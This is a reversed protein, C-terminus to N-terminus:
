ILAATTAAFPAAIIAALALRAPHRVIWVAPTLVGVVVLALLPVLLAVHNYVVWPWYLFPSDGPVRSRDPFAERWAQSLTPLSDPTWWATRFDAAVAAFWDGFRDALPEKAAEDPTDVAAAATVSPLSDDRTRMRAHVRAEEGGSRPGGGIEAAVVDATFANSFTM